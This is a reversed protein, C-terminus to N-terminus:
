GQCDDVIQHGPSGRYVVVWRGRYMTLAVEIDAQYGQRDRVRVDVRKYRGDDLVSLLHM